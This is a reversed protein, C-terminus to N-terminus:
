NDLSRIANALRAIAEEASIEFYFTSFAGKLPDQGGAVHLLDARHAMQAVLAAPGDRLPALAAAVSERKLGARRVTALWSTREDSLTRTFICSDQDLPAFARECAATDLGLSQFSHLMDPWFEERPAAPMAVYADTRTQDDGFSKFGVYLPMLETIGQDLCACLLDWYQTYLRVSGADTRMALGIADSGPLAKSWQRILSAPAGAKSAANALRKACGPKLNFFLLVREEVRNEGISCSWECGDADRILAPFVTESRSINSKYM